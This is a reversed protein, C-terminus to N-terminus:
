ILIARWCCYASARYDISMNETICTLCTFNCQNCNSLTVGPWTVNTENVAWTRTQLYLSIIARVFWYYVSLQGSLGNIYLIMNACPSHHSGAATTVNQETQSLSKRLPKRKLALYTVHLALKHLIHNLIYFPRISLFVSYQTIKWYIEQLYKQKWLTKSFWCYDLTNRCTSVDTQQVFILLLLPKLPPPRPPPPPLQLILLLIITTSIRKNAVSKWM